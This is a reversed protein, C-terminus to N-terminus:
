VAVKIHIEGFAAGPGQRWLVGAENEYFGATDIHRYGIKVAKRSSTTRSPARRRTTCASELASGLRQDLDISNRADDGLKLSFAAKACDRWRKSSIM